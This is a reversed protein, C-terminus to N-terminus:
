FGEEEDEDEERFEGQWHALRDKERSAMMGQENNQDATEAKLQASQEIKNEKAASKDQFSVVGGKPHTKQGEDKLHRCLFQPTPKHAGEDGEEGENGRCTSAPPLASYLGEDRTSLGALPLALALRAPLRPAPRKKFETRDGVGPYTAPSTGGGEAFPSPTLPAM